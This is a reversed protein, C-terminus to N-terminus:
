GTATSLGETSRTVARRSRDWPKDKVTKKFLIYHKNIQQPPHSLLFAMRQLTFSLLGDYSWDCSVTSFLANTFLDVAALCFAFFLPTRGLFPCVSARLCLKIRTVPLSLLIRCPM